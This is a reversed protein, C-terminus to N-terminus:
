TLRRKCLFYIAHSGDSLQEEEYQVTEFGLQEYLRRYDIVQKNFSPYREPPSVCSIVDNKNEVHLIYNKTIRALECATAIAATFPLHMMVTHTYTFEFSEDSIQPLHHISGFITKAKVYIKPEYQLTTFNTQMQRFFDPNNEVCTLKTDSGLVDYVMKALKGAGAGAELINKPKYERVIDLVKTKTKDTNPYTYETDKYWDQLSPAETLYNDNQSASKEYLSIQKYIADKGVVDYLDIGGSNCKLLEQYKNEFIPNTM